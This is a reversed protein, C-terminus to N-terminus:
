GWDSDSSYDTRDESYHKYREILTRPSEGTAYMIVSLVIVVASVLKIM